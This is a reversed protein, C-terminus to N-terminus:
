HCFDIAFVGLQFTFMKDWLERTMLYVSVLRVQAVNGLRRSLPDCWSDKIGDQKFKKQKPGETTAEPVEEYEFKGKNEHINNNIATIELPTFKLDRLETTRAKEAAKSDIFFYAEKIKGSEFLDVLRGPLKFQRVWKAIQNLTAETLDILDIEEM